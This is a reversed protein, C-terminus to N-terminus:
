RQPEELSNLCRRPLLLNGGIFVRPKSTITWNFPPHLSVYQIETPQKTKDLKSIITATMKPAGQTFESVKAVAIPKRQSFISELTIRSDLPTHIPFM